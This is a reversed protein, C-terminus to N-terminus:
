LPRLRRCSASRVTEKLSSPLEDMVGVAQEVPAFDVKQIEKLLTWGGYGLVGVLAVLVAVSGVAGPEIGEFISNPRPVFSANPNALPDGPGAIGVVKLRAGGQRAMHRKVIRVREVAQEPQLVKSTVGPRSENACDFRRECFGCKINCGPAVPLHIRAYKHHARETYCPHTELAERIDEPVEETM